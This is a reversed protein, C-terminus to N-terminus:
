HVTACSAVLADCVRWAYIYVLDFGITNVDCLIAGMCSIYRFLMSGICSCHATCGNALHRFDEIVFHRVDLHRLEIM